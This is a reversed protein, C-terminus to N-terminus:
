LPRWRRTLRVGQRANACQALEHESEILELEAVVVENGGVQDQIHRDSLRACAANAVHRM